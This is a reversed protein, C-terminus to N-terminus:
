VGSLHHEALRTSMQAAVGLGDVGQQTQNPHPRNLQKMWPGPM